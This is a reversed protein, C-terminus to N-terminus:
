FCIIDKSIGIRADAINMDGAAGDGDSWFGVSEGLRSGILRASGSWSTTCNKVFLPSMCLRLGLFRFGLVSSFVDLFIALFGACAGSGAM